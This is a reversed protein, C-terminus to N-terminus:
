DMECVLRPLAQLSRHHLEAKELRSISRTFSWSPRCASVAFAQYMQESNLLPVNFDSEVACFYHRRKSRTPTCFRIPFGCGHKRIRGPCASSTKTIASTNTPATVPSSTPSRLAAPRRKSARRPRSSTTPPCAATVGAASASGIPIPLAAPSQTTSRPLITKWTSAGWAAYIGMAYKEGRGTSGRPNPMIVAYGNAAFLQKEFDFENAYQSQPGGHPRLLAPNKAMEAIQGSRPIWAGRNRGQEQIENRRGPRAQNARPIRRETEDPSSSTKKRPSFRTPGIPRAQGYLSTATKAVDYATVKRRGGVVPEPAGGSAPVRMLTEAGDDELLSLFRNAMPRGVRSSLM